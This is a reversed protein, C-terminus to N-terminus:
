FAMKSLIYVSFEEETFVQLSRDQSKNDVNKNSQAHSDIIRGWKKTGAHVAYM